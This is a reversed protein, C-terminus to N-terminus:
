RKYKVGCGYPKTEPKSVPKGELIEDLAKAVFNEAGAIDASNNSGNSDIAGAYVLTGKNIVYMHPTTKAGYTGGVMGSADDLIPRNIKWEDAIQKNEGVTTFNSSDIALWVVGKEMYKAALKNMDGNEYHKVVFPCKDNFWELVVVKDKFSELSVDSGNQDKLVFAPAPSGLTAKAEKAHQDANVGSVLALGAAAVAVLPILMRFM